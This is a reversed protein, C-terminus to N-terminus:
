RTFYEELHALWAAGAAVTAWMLLPVPLAVWVWTLLVVGAAIWVSACWSCSILAGVWNPVGGWRAVQPDDGTIRDRVWQVPPFTDEVVLRTLRYAALTMMIVLWTFSV